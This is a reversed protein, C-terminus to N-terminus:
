PRTGAVVLREDLCRRALDIDATDGSLVYRGNAEVLIAALQFALLEPDTEPPLEGLEQAEQVVRSLLLRWVAAQQALADRVPGPRSALEAAAATFFCGGEFVREEVYVLYSFCLTRVRRVGKPAALGPRIVAELFIEGATEITALQLEEKSGFHAYLGSKSMGVENALGAISLGDLGDVGVL